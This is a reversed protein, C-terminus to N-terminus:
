GMYGATEGEETEKEWSEKLKRIFRILQPKLGKWEASFSKIFAADLKEENLISLEALNRDAVMLRKYLEFLGKKEQENFVRSEYLDVLNTEPHLVEAVICSVDGVKESVKRRVERLSFSESDIAGIEFESDLEEFGPLKHRKRLAEYKKKVGTAM